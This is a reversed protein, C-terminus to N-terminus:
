TTLRSQAIACVAVVIARSVQFIMASHEVARARREKSLSRVLRSWRNGFYAASPIQQAYNKSSIDGMRKSKKKEPLM